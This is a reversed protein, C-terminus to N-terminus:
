QAAIGQNELYSQIRSCRSEAVSRDWRGEYYAPFFLPLTKGSTMKLSVYYSVTGESRRGLSSVHLDVIENFPIIKKKTGFRSEDEILIQRIKPDVTITQKGVMLVAPVGILVLLIGLLFGALSNTFGSVDFNRFGYVLILGVVVIAWSLISQKVPNSETTWIEM